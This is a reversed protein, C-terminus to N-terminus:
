HVHVHGSISRPDNSQTEDCCTLEGFTFGAFISLALQLGVLFWVFSSLGYERAVGNILPFLAITPIFLSVTIFYMSRAGLWNFAPAFFIMQIVGASLGLLALIIGIMPPDLNLGGMEIPMAYFVPLVARFAIDTLAFTAYSGSAILVPPILLSRIPLQKNTAEPGPSGAVVGSDDGPMSGKTTKGFFYQKLTM